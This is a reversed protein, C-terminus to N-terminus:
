AEPTNAEEQFSKNSYQKIVECLLFMVHMHKPVKTPFYCENIIQPFPSM